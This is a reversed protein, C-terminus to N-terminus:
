VDCQQLTWIVYVLQRPRDTRRGKAMLGKHWVHKTYSKLVVHHCRRAADTKKIKKIVDFPHPRLSFLFFFFGTKNAEGFFFLFSCGCRHLKLNRKIAPAAFSRVQEATFWHERMHTPTVLLLVTGIDGGDYLYQQQQALLMRVEMM